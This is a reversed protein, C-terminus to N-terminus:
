KTKTKNKFFKRHIKIANNITVNDSLSRCRSIFYENEMKRKMIERRVHVPAYWHLRCPLFSLLDFLCKWKIGDDNDTTARTAQVFKKRERKWADDFIIRNCQPFSNWNCWNRGNKETNRDQECVRQATRQMRERANNQLEVILLIMFLTSFYRCWLYFHPFRSHFFFFFFSSISHLNYSTQRLRSFYTFNYLAKRHSSFAMKRNDITRLIEKKNLNKVEGISVKRRRVLYIESTETFTWVCRM